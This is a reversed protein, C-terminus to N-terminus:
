PTRGHRSPSPPRSASILAALAPANKEALAVSGPQCRCVGGPLALASVTAPAIGLARAVVRVPYQALAARIQDRINMPKTMPLRKGIAEVVSHAARSNEAM